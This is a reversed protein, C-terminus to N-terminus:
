SLRVRRQAGNTIKPNVLRVEMRHVGAPLAITFRREDAIEAEAVRADDAYIELYPAIQDSQVATATITVPKGNTWTLMHASGCLENHGCTGLWERPANSLARLQRRLQAATADDHLITSVRLARDLVEADTRVVMVLSLHRNAAAVDGRRAELEARELHYAQWDPSSAASTMEINTAADRNGLALALRARTHAPLGQQAEIFPTLGELPLQHRLAYEIVSTMTEGFREPEFSRRKLEALIARVLPEYEQEIPSPLLQPLDHAALSSASTRFTELRQRRIAARIERYEGFLGNAAAITRLETFANITDPATRRLWGMDHTLEWLPRLLEVFIPPDRMLPAAAALVAARDAANLEYWHFLGGRVFGIMPNQSRPATSRALGYAARWLEFRRAAPSDLAAETLDTATHWDAPHQALWAAMAMADRPAVRDGIVGRHTLFVALTIALM